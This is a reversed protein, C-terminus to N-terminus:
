REQLPERFTRGAYDARSIDRRQLEPVVAKCFAEYASPTLSPCLIFGDCCESEFLHAFNTMPRDCRLTRFQTFRDRQNHIPPDRASEYCRGDRVACAFRRSSVRRRSRANRPGYPRWLAAHIENLYHIGCHALKCAKM